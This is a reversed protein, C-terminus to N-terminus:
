HRPACEKKNPQFLWTSGKSFGDWDALGGAGGSWDLAMVTTSYFRHFIRTQGSESGATHGDRVMRSGGGDCASVTISESYVSGRQRSPPLYVDTYSEKLCLTSNP